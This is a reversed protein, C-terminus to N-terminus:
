PKATIAPLEFLSDSMERGTQVRDFEFRIKRDIEVSYGGDSEYRYVYRVPSVNVRTATISAVKMNGDLEIKYSAGEKKVLLRNKNNTTIANELWAPELGPHIFRILDYTQLKMRGIKLMASQTSPMKKYLKKAPAAYAVVRKNVTGVFWALGATDLLTVRMSDPRLVLVTTKSKVWGKTGKFAAQGTLM